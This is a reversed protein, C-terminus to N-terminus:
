CSSRTRARAAAARGGASGPALRRRRLRHARVQPRPHRRERQGRSGSRVGDRASTGLLALPGTLPTWMGIKIEGRQHRSGAGDGERRRSCGRACRRANGRGDQAYSERRRTTDDPNMSGEEAGGGAADHRDELASRHEAVHDAGHRGARDAADGVSRRWRTSARMMDPGVHTHSNESGYLLKHYGCLRGFRKVRSFVKEPRVLGLLRHRRPRQEWKRRRAGHVRRGM